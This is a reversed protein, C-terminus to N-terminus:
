FYYPIYYHKRHGDDRKINTENYGEDYEIKIDDYIM